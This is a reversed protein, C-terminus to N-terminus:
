SMCFYIAHRQWLSCPSCTIRWPSACSLHVPVNDVGPPQPRLDLWTRQAEQDAEGLPEEERCGTTLRAGHPLATPQASCCPILRLLWSASKMEVHDLFPSQSSFGIDLALSIRAPHPNEPPLFISKVMQTKGRIRRLPANEWSISAPPGSEQAIITPRWSQSLLHWHQPHVPPVHPAQRRRLGPSHALRLSLSCVKM